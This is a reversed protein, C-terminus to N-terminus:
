PDEQGFHSAAIFIDDIGIYDDGNIDHTPSYYYGNSNPPGGPETGFRLAVNFIDDIGVYGDVPDVDGPIVVRVIGDTYNNDATDTEGPVLTAYASITYNGKAFGTTNWNFTLTTSDGKELTITKTELAHSVTKIEEEDLARDYIRVDDIKGTFHQPAPWGVPNGGIYVGWDSHIIDEAFSTSVDLEGDIYLKIQSHDYTFAVHHWYGEQLIFNSMLQQAWENTSYALECNVYGQNRVDLGYGIGPFYANYEKSVIRADKHQNVFPIPSYVWAMVTLNNVRLSPSDSIYVYDDAGDFSLASGSSRGDVWSAGYVTGDNNYGSSDYATTGSGEDFKWYGVLGSPAVTAYDTLNYYTTVNFTETYDGQNAATVNINLSYGQGVVSKSPVVNTVAVDHAPGFAYVKGDKSGIYVRGDAVAPYHAEDSTTYSWIPSGDTANLAYVKRDGSGIFVKGDAVAPYTVEGGTTYNWILDGNTINLAVTFNQTWSSVFVKGYAVASGHWDTGERTFNWILAGNTANLAYVKGDGSGMFVKSDVVCPISAVTYSGTQYSWILSGDTANLAYVKGDGAGMFVRGDNLAASGATYDGGVQFSWIFAGTTANLAYLKNDPWLSPIYVKGDAFNASGRSDIPYSWDFAGTTGNLAYLRGNGSTGRAGSTAFVRGYDVSVCHVAEYSTAFSWILSGTSANLAYVKGDRSAVFVESNSVAVHSVDSGTTYKWLTTNTNPALSTSCGTRRSDHQLMPWWDTGLQIRGLKYKGDYYTFYLYRRGDVDEFHFPNMLQTINADLDSPKLLMTRNAWGIGDVSKAMGITQYSGDANSAGYFMSYIGDDEKVVSAGGVSDEWTDIVYPLSLQRNTWTIGDTSTARWIKGNHRPAGPVHDLVMYWMVYGGLDHIVCAHLVNYGDGQPTSQGQASLVKQDDISMFAPWNVGDTSTMHAIYASWDGAVWEYYDRHWMRYTGGEKIVWPSWTNYYSIGSPGHVVQRNFWAIGDDSEAYAIVRRCPSPQSVAYYWMKYLGGDCIVFPTAIETDWDTTNPEMVTTFTDLLPVLESAGFSESAIPAISPDTSGDARIYITGSAEAPQINFTLTLMTVILLAVLIGSFIRSLL